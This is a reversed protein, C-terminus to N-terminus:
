NTRLTILDFFMLRTNLTQGQGYGMYEREQEDTSFLFQFGNREYYKLPTDENYSDVVIFRCGTKNESDAFWVKIFNMLEKGVGKSRFKKSVGLRGILVAPYSRLQKPRPIEKSVKRRRSGPLM